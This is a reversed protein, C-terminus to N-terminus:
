NSEQQRETFMQRQAVQQPSMGNLKYFERLQAKPTGLPPADSSRRERLDQMGARSSLRRLTTNLKQLISFLEAQDTEIKAFRSESAETLAPSPPPKKPRTARSAVRWLAFAFSAGLCVLLIVTILLSLQADPAM